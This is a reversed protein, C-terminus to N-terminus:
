SHDIRHEKASWRYSAGFTFHVELFKGWQYAKPGPSIICNHFGRAYDYDVIV